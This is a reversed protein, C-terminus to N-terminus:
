NYDQWVYLIGRNNEEVMTLHYAVLAEMYRVFLYVEKVAVLVVSSKM